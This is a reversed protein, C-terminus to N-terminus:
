VKRSGPPISVTPSRKDPRRLSWCGLVLIVVFAAAPLVMKELQRKFM